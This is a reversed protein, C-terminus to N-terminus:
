RPKERRLKMVEHDAARAKRFFESDGAYKSMIWDAVAPSYRRGAGPLNFVFDPRDDLRHQRRVAQIDYSNLMRRGLRKNLERMLDKQRWPYLRDVDQPQLAPADPDTVIRVPKLNEGASRAVTAPKRKPKDLLEIPRTLLRRIRRLSRRSLRRALREIFERMDASTGPVGRGDRWVYFAGPQLITERPDTITANERHIASSIGIPFIAPGVRVSKDARDATEAHLVEIDSFNADTVQLLRKMIAAATLIGSDDHVAIQGGGSNALAILDRILESWDHDSSGDLHRVQEARQQPPASEDRRGDPEGQFTERLPSFLSEVQM